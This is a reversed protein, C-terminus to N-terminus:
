EARVGTTETAYYLETGVEYYFYDGYLGRVDSGAENLDAITVPTGNGKVAYLVNDTSRYYCVGKANVAYLYDVDEAIAADSMEGDDCYFLTNNADLVFADTGYVLFRSVRETVISAKADSATADAMFHLVNDTHLYSNQSTFYLTKGNESMVASGTAGEIPRVTTGDFFVLTEFCKYALGKLTNLQRVNDSVAVRISGDSPIQVPDSDGDVYFYKESYGNYFLIETADTNPDVNKSNDSLRKPAGKNTSVYLVMDGYGVVQQIYLYTANDSVAAPLANEIDIKTKEGGWTQVYLTYENYGNNLSYAVTLGNPSPVVEEVNEGLSVASKEATNYWFLEGGQMYLVTTCNENVCDVWAERAVVTAGDKTVLYITDIENQDTCTYVATKGDLATYDYAIEGPLTAVKKGDLYINGQADDIFLSPSVVFKDSTAVPTSGGGNQTHGGNQTDTTEAQPDNTASQEANGCGGFLLATALLVAILASLHKMKM